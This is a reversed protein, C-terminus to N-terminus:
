VGYKLHDRSDHVGSFNSMEKSLATNRLVSDINAWNRFSSAQTCCRATCSLFIVPRASECTNAALGVSVRLSKDIKGPASLLLDRTYEAAVRGSDCVDQQLVRAEFDISKNMSTSVNELYQGISYGIPEYSGFATRHSEKVISFVKGHANLVKRTTMKM